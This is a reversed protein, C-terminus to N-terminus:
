AQSGSPSMDDILSDFDHRSYVYSGRKGRRSIKGSQTMRYLASQISKPRTFSDKVIVRAMIDGEEVTIVSPNSFIEEVVEHTIAAVNMQRGRTLSEQPDLGVSKLIAALRDTDMEVKKLEAEIREREKTLHTRMESLAAYGIRADRLFADFDFRSEIEENEIPM